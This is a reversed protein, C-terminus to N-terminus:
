WHSNKVNKNLKLNGLLGALVLASTTLRGNSSSRQSNENNNSNSYATDFSFLARPSSNIVPRHTLVRWSHQQQRIGNLLVRKCANM